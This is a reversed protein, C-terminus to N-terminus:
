AQKNTHKNTQKIAKLTVDVLKAPEPRQANNWVRSPVRTTGSIKTFLNCVFVSYKVYNRKTALRFANQKFIDLVKQKYFHKLDIFVQNIIRQTDYRLLM